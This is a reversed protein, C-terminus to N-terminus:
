TGVSVLCYKNRLGPTMVGGGTETLGVGHRGQGGGGLHACHLSTNSVALACLAWVASGLHPQHQLLPTGLGRRLAGRLGGGECLQQGLETVDICIINFYKIKASGSSASGGRKRWISNNNETDCCKGRCKLIFGIEIYSYLISILESIIM